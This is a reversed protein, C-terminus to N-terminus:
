FPLNKSLSRCTKVGMWAGSSDGCGRGRREGYSRSDGGVVGPVGNYVEIDICDLLFYAIVELRPASGPYIRTNALRSGFIGVDSKGQSERLSGGTADATVYGRCKTLDHDYSCM